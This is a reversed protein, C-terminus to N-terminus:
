DKVWNPPNTYLLCLPVCARIHFLSELLRWSTPLLWSHLCFFRCYILPLSKRWGLLLHRQVTSSFHEKLRDATLETTNWIVNGYTPGILWPWMLGALLSGILLCTNYTRYISLGDFALHVNPHNYKRKEKEGALVNVTFLESPTWLIPMWYKCFGFPSFPTRAILYFSVM